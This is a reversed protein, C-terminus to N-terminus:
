GTCNSKTKHTRTDPRVNTESCHTAPQVTIDNNSVKKLTCLNTLCIFPFHKSSKLIIKNGRQQKFM